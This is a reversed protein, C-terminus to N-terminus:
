RQLLHLYRVSNGVVQNRQGVDGVFGRLGIMHGRKVVSIVSAAEGIMNKLAVGKVYVGRGCIHDCRVADEVIVNTGIMSSGAGEVPVAMGIM